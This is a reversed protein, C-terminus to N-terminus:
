CSLEEDEDVVVVASDVDVVSDTEVDVFIGLLGKVVGSGGM